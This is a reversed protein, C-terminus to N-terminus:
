VKDGISNETFTGDPGPTFQLVELVADVNLPGYIHPFTTQAGRLTVPDFRVEPKVKDPDIVLLVLGHQGHYHRNASDVVQARTSAHIFGENALSAVTYQGNIKAQQWNALTSIHYIEM